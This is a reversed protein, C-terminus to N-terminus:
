KLGALKAWRDSEGVTQSKKGSGSTTARSSSGFRTSENLTKSRSLSETLSKYLAKTEGLTKAEDLAKIVSKKQSENLYKNQLLKNVYLLKANFLNLDELQERLTHVAGRYKNLKEQQSRNARRLKRIAENLKQLSSPPNTFVDKGYSGGGFSKQYGAKKPGSGGFANKVGAKGGGKGGFHHDVKGEKLMRKVNRLEQRLINPDVDFVENLEEAGEESPEEEIDVSELEGLDPAEAAAGAGGGGIDLGLDAILEEIQAEVDGKALMDGGAEGMPEEESELDPMDDSPEESDEDEQEMLYSLEKIMEEDEEDVSDEAESDMEYLAETKAPEDDEYMHLFEDTESLDEGFDSENAKEEEQDALEYMRDHVSERLLGLDVEYMKERNRMNMSEKVSNTQDNIIDNNNLINKNQNIKKILQIMRLRDTGGLNNLATGFAENITHKQKINKYIGKAGIMEVLSNIASEDLVVSEDSDDISADESHDDYSNDDQELLTKEIFQKIQPTVSELIAKQANEEAVEKLKKADALAEEFIKSM